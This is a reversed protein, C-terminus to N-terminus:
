LNTVEQKVRCILTKQEWYSEGERPGIRITVYYNNIKLINSESLLYCLINEQRNRAQGKGKIWMVPKRLSIRCFQIEYMSSYLHLM